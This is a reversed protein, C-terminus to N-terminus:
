LRCQTLHEAVVDMLRTLEDICLAAAEVEGVEGRHGSLLEFLDLLNQIVFDEPM